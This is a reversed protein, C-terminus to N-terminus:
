AFFRMRGWRVGVGNGRLMRREGARRFGRGVEGSIGVEYTTAGAGVAVGVEDGVLTSAGAAESIGTVAVGTVAAGTVDDGVAMGVAVGVLM